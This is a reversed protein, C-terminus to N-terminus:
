KPDVWVSAVNSSQGAADRTVATVFGVDTGDTKFSLVLSFSGDGATTAAKGTASPVGDFNVRLSGPAEDIVRGSFRYQGVETRVAQFEVIEPPMDVPTDIVPLAVLSPDISRGDTAALYATAAAWAAEDRWEVDTAYLSSPAARDDLGVLSLRTRLGLAPREPRRWMKLLPM